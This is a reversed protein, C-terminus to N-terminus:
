SARVTRVVTAFTSPIITLMKMAQQIQYIISLVYSFNVVECAPPIRLIGQLYKTSQFITNHINLM